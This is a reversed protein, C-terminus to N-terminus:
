RDVYHSSVWDRMFRTPSALRLRGDRLEGLTLPALWASYAKESVEQQLREQVRAWQAELTGRFMHDGMGAGATMAIKNNAEPQYETKALVQKVAAGMRSRAGHCDMPKGVRRAAAIARM